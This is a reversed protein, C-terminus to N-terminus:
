PLAELPVPYVFDRPDSGESLAIWRSQDENFVRYHRLKSHLERIFKEQEQVSMGKWTDEDISTVQSKYPIDDLYEGLLGLDAIKTASEAKIKSPDQGMAAAVSRLQAFMDNPSILGENAADAIKKVVDSLDSLQSKTLLVRAEATPVTPKAFDKDSIWAKFVPPAKTGKAGGLYALQMARGLLMADQEIESTPAPASKKEKEVASLASGAAMEGRYALKVQATLAKALTSIKEGFENVDGANVPYYLAKNLYHNFALDTYQAQAQDHNKAGSPTKLHLAYIAVGRHQAELRLQKADLGTTSIPNDGEIAGADTILVMYRAGFQNWQIENLAQNIGAYADESFEKSSVKAQKLSAVKQMFDKGDKVTTPDVFMKSTYELGKVAKTSSRFAVLGFKVQEGLNEKEIQDYVQKIAERTRNIYPDMSITSDIVFVVAARFGTVEQPNDATATKKADSSVTKTSTDTRTPSTTLTGEQKSVSAVELAREYFGKANMVEEGQLIPLLYFNKQFDVFESPEQALVAPHAKNATLAQRIPNVVQVPDEANIVQDLASRDKFFLLPDREAPNTFVLTMQMQWPVACSEDLWGVTKGFTDPGVQVMSKGAQNERKYVYYRSFAPIKKGSTAQQNDLLECSPTSLVRQYLTTKGEQLLPKQEALAHLSLPLLGCLVYLPLLNLRTM